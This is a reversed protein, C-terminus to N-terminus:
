ELTRELIEIVGQGGGNECPWKWVCDSPDFKWGIYELWEKADKKHKFVGFVTCNQPNPDQYFVINVMM